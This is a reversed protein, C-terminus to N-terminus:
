ELGLANYEQGRRQYAAGPRHSAARLAEMYLQHRDADYALALGCGKHVTKPTPIIRYPWGLESLTDEANLLQNNSGFVLISEDSLYEAM